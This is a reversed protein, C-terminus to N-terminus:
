VYMKLCSTYCQITTSSYKIIRDEYNILVHKIWSFCQMFNEPLNDTMGYYRLFSLSWKIWFFIFLVNDRSISTIFYELVLRKMCYWYMNLDDFLFLAYESTSFLRTIIPSLSSYYYGPWQFYLTPLFVHKLRTREFVKKRASQLCYSM